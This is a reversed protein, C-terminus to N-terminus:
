TSTSTIPASTPSHKQNQHYRLSFSFHNSFSVRVNWHSFFAFFHTALLIGLCDSDVTFIGPFFLQITVLRWRCKVLNCCLESQDLRARIAEEGKEITTTWVKSCLFLNERAIGSEKIAKGM